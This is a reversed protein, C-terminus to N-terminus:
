RIYYLSYLTNRRKQLNGIILVAGSMRCGYLFM